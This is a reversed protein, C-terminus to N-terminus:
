RSPRIGLARYVFSWEEVVEEIVKNVPKGQGHGAKGEVRLM